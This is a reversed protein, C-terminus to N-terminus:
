SCEGNKPTFSGRWSCDLPMSMIVADPDIERSIFDEMQRLIDVGREYRPYLSSGHNFKVQVARDDWIELCAFDKRDTITLAPLGHLALWNHIMPHQEPLAARATFIRVDHGESLWQKVQELMPKLPEGIEAITGMYIALTGDLDVAIWPTKM